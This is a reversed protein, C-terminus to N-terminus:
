GSPRAFFLRSGPFDVRAQPIVLHLLDPTEIGRVIRRDSYYIPVASESTSLTVSDPSTNDRILYSLDQFEAAGYPTKAHQVATAFPYLVLMPLVGIMIYLLYRHGTAQEADLLKWIRSLIYGSAIALSPAGFVLPFSPRRLKADPRLLSGM